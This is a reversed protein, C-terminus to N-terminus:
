LWGCHSVSNRQLYHMKLVIDMNIDIIDITDITDGM